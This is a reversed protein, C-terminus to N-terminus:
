KTNETRDAEAIRVTTGSILSDAPNIIVRDKATIGSVVELNRGFDRGLVVQRLEVRGNTDVVGVQTGESRFLLTNSPLVLAMDQKLDGFSVQAYSGALLENHSNDVELETLLTRSIPDIAGATRVVKATFKRTPFEPVTMEANGGVAIGPTAPQPVRVFVRLVHTDALRFLEKGSSILDGVDISRATITGAFPAKVHAFDQLNELRHVNAAAADVNATKLALDAKKEAAEQDSVSSTKLLEAWRTATIKALALAAETQALEAKAGTLQQDLEPADIDALLQGAEVKAGIDVKWQKIFGSARAYIPAETVPKIEASLNLGETAKGPVPSIVSVTSVALERTDQILTQRHRLRPVLGAVLGLIMLVGILLVWRGLRPQSTKAGSSAPVNGPPSLTPPHASEIPNM